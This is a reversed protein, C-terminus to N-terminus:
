LVGNGGDVKFDDKNVIMSLLKEEEKACQELENKLNELEMEYFNKHEIQSSMKNRLHM